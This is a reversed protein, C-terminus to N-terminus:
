RRSVPIESSLFKGSPIVESLKPGLEGNLDEVVEIDFINLVSPLQGVDILFIEFSLASLLLLIILFIQVSTEGFPTSNLLICRKM